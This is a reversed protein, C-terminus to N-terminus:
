AIDARDQSNVFTAADGFIEYSSLFDYILVQSWGKRLKGNKNELLLKKIEPFIIKVKPLINM